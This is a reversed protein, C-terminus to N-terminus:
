ITSPVPEATRALLRKLFSRAPAPSARAVTILSAVAAALFVTEATPKFALVSLSFAVVSLLSILFYSRFYRRVM